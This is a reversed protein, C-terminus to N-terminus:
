LEKRGPSANGKPIAIWESISEKRSPLGNPSVKREPHCDMRLYKGKPTATWESIRNREPQCDKRLHKGKPNATRESICKREPNGQAPPRQR